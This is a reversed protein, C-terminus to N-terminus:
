ELIIYLHISSEERATCDIGLLLHIVFAPVPLRPFTLGEKHGLHITGSFFSPNFFRFLFGYMYIDATLFFFSSWFGFLYLDVNLVM